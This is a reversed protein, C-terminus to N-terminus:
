RTSRRQDRLVDAAREVDPSAPSPTPHVLGIRRAAADHKATLHDVMAEYPRSARWRGQPDRRKPSTM